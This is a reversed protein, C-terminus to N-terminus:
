EIFRRLMIARDVNHDEGPEFAVPLTRDFIYFSRHRKVDGTDLGAEQGLLGTGPDVEFFGVTVWTAYVNSRTTVLNELRQFGHYRFYPNRTPDIHAGGVTPTLVGDNDPPALAGPNDRNSRLLTCEIDPRQMAALPVLDGTGAGRFPNLFFTPPDNTRVDWVRLGRARFRTDWTIERAPRGTSAALGRRSEVLQAFTPVTRNQGLIATWIRDDFVTNINVQGPDRYNSVRNFPAYRLATGAGSPGTATAAFNTPNLWTDTDVFRSPVRIYEFLRSLDMGLEIDVTGNGNVDEGVDVPLTVTGNGNFDENGSSEFFNLLHGFQSSASSTTTGPPNQYPANNPAATRLLSFRLTLESSRTFPVLPLELQSVFPRNNWTLWPFASRGGVTAPAGVFADTPAASTATTAGFGKELRQGDLRSLGGLTHELDHAFYHSVVSGGASVAPTTTARNWLTRSNGSGRERSKFRTTGNNTVQPDRGSIGHFVTLDISSVDITLYPNTTANHPLLPNALRQLHVDRFNVYTGDNQLTQVEPTGPAVDISRAPDLDFPRDHPAAYTDEGTNPHTGSPFANGSDDVSPYPGESVNLGPIPVAIAPLMDALYDTAAPTAPAAPLWSPVEAVGGVNNGGVFVWNNAINANPHLMIRRTQDAQFNSDNRRGILSVYESAADAAGTVPDQAAANTQLQSTGIVAYRGGPIPAIGLGVPLRHVTIPNGGPAPVPGGAGFYILREIESEQSRSDPFDLDPANGGPRRGTVAIRWVPNGGATRNLVVGSAPGTGNYLELPKRVDNSSWPNYLELFLYGQPRLRQDFDNVDDDEPDSTQRNPPDLDETRRDHYALTETILLEPRECGWVFGRQTAEDPDDPTGDGDDDIMNMALTVNEDTTLVGDVQWGNYPNTDYEFHTMISDPDRFDVVNVAWQALGHTTEARSSAGDANFDIQQGRRLSSLALVYLHRAYLQRTLYADADSTFGDNDHDFAIGNWLQENAGPAAELAQAATPGHEDVLGNGNDDVGNGIPRNVDMPLGSLVDPPVIALLVSNLLQRHAATSPPMTLGQNQLELMVRARVIDMTTSARREPYVSSFAASAFHGRLERPTSVAPVPLDFSDTTITRRNAAAVSSTSFSTVLSSLRSALATADLDHHRLVSELEAVSYPQDRDRSTTGPALRGRPGRSALRVEYPSDTLTDARTPREYVPQGRHDLGFAIEGFLDPVNFFSKGAAYYNNPVEFFRVSALADMGTAGPPAVSGSLQNVFGYRGPLALSSEGTLLRTLVNTGFVSRLDIEAPGYGQGKPVSGALLAGALDSTAQFPLKGPVHAYSSHANVNLRSDLDVTHFAFLPKVLRGDPTTQVPYDLDTWISDPIGDGDNDVDWPGTLLAEIDDSGPWCLEKLDPSGDPFWNTNGDGDDDAGPGVAVGPAGDAGFTLAPNSGTFNPNDWTMPRLIYARRAAWVTQWTVASSPPIWPITGNNIWYNILAPRHYSPIVFALNRSFPIATHDPIVASLAMNQYDVADYSEDAGGFLYAAFTGAAPPTGATAPTGTSVLYQNPRLATVDLRRTTANYGFGTGNFPQGNLIVTDGVSPRQALSGDSTGAMLRFIGTEGFYGVVRYSIGVRNSSVATTTTSSITTMVRGVYYGDVRELSTDQGFLNKILPDAPPTGPSTLLRVDFFQGGTADPLGAGAGANGVASVTGRLGDLGYIDLLLSHGRLVSKPDRTDRIQTYYAGDLLEQPDIVTTRSRAIARAGARYQGSVILFTVMLLTFLVLLSLM